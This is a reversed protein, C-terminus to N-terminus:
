DDSDFSVETAIFGIETDFRADIEVYVGLALNDKAGGIYQVTDSLAIRASGIEIHDGSLSTIKGEIEFPDFDDDLDDFEIRRPVFVGQMNFDGDLEVFVQNALKSRNGDNFEIDGELNVEINGIMFSTENFNSIPGSIEIEQNDVGEIDIERAVIRGQADYSGEVEVLMGVVWSSPMGDDFKTQETVLVSIGNVVFESDGNVQTVLGKIEVEYGDNDDDGQSDEFEIYLALLGVETEKARVELEQGIVLNDIDGDEFVTESDISIQQRNMIFVNELLSTTIQGELKVSGGKVDDNDDDSNNDDDDYQELEVEIAVLEGSQLKIADIEVESGIQALNFFTASDIYRDQEDLYFETAGNIAIDIGRVSLQTETVNQLRGEVEISSQSPVGNGVSLRTVRSAFLDDDDNSNLIGLVEVEDGIALSDITLQRISLSSEDVFVTFTGIEFERGLVNITNDEYDIETIISRIQTENQNVIWVDDAKRQGNETEIEVIITLGPVLDSVTGNEVDTDSTIAITEGSGLIIQNSDVSAIVGKVVLYKDGDISDDEDEVKTALITGSETQQTFKVEVLSGEQLNFEVVAQSYDIALGKMEFTQDNTNLNTVRGEIEFLESNSELEIRTAVFQNPAKELLSVEVVDGVVLQNLSIDDFKTLRDVEITQGFVVLTGQSLSISEIPGKIDADYSISTASAISGDSTTRGEIKVKMGTKLENEDVIQDDAEIVADDTEYKVGNVFVSGFNSIAGISTINTQYVLTQAITQNANIQFQITSPQVDFVTEGSSVESTTIQYSGAVLDSLNVSSTIERSFGDPGTITAKAVSNSPLGLFDVTLSGVNPAPAPSPLEAVPSDSSSGGCATLSFISAISLSLLTYKTNM